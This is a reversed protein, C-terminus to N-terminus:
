REHGTAEPDYGPKFAAVDAGVAEVTGAFDMGLVKNRPAFVGVVAAALLGLGNPLDKVRMRHDGASVTAAVVRILVEGAKPVPNPVEEVAVVEPGGFKRYVSAKM